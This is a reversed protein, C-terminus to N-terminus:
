SSSGTINERVDFRSRASETVPIVANLEIFDSTEGPQLAVAIPQTYVETDAASGTNKRIISLSYNEDGPNLAIDGNNKVKVNM